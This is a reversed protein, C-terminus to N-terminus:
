GVFAMLKSALILMNLVDASSAINDVATSLSNAIVVPEVDSVAAHNNDAYRGDVDPVFSDDAPSIDSSYFNFLLPSLVSGQPVGM